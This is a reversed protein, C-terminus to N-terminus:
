ILEGSIAMMGFPIDRVSSLVTSSSAGILVGRSINQSAARLGGSDRIESQARGSRGLTDWLTPDCIDMALNSADQVANSLVDDIQRDMELWKDAMDLPAALQAPTLSEPSGIYEDLNNRIPGRLATSRSTQQAGNPTQGAAQAGMQLALSARQVFSAISPDGANIINNRISDAMMTATGIAYARTNADLVAKTSLERQLQRGRQWNQIARDYSSLQAYDMDTPSPFAPDGIRSVNTYGTVFMQFSFQIVEPVPQSTEQASAGLMYGEVIIDDYMLYLRAGLEVLKTGRFYRDYNEWFEARWNFDATNLFYGSVQLMRPAEGFFFIWPAGFTEVIQQKEQRQESVSQIFFNAYQTSTAHDEPEGEQTRLYVGGSDIVPMFQGDRGMIRIVSFIDEKLQFGRTPRRVSLADRGNQQIDEAYQERRAQNPETRAEIFVAM